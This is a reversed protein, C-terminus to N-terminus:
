SWFLPTTLKNAPNGSVADVRCVCCHVFHGYQKAADRGRLIFLVIDSSSLVSLDGGLSVRPTRTRIYDGLTEEMALVSCGTLILGADLLDQLSTSYMHPDSARWLCIVPEMAYRLYATTQENASDIIRLHRGFVLFQAGVFFYDTISRPVTVRKLHHGSNKTNRLEITGDDTYYVMVLEKTEGSGCTDCSVHFVLRSPTEM